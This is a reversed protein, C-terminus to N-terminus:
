QSQVVVGVVTGEVFTLGFQASIALVSPSCGKETNMLKEPDVAIKTHWFAHMKPLNDLREECRWLSSQLPPLNSIFDAERRIEGERGRVSPRDSFTPCSLSFFYGAAIM